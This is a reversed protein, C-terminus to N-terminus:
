KYDWNKARLMELHEEDVKALNTAGIQFTKATQETLDALNEIMGHLSEVTLQESYHLYINVAWGEGITLNKLVTCGQFTNTSLNSKATTISITELKSCSYFTQNFGTGSSIDLLPIETLAVCNYFMNGFSRGNGTDIPPITTLNACGSFMCYFNTGNSTNLLPITELTGCSQFMYSFDTGNSVDLYNLYDNLKNYSAFYSFDTIKSTDIYPKGIDTSPKAGKNFFKSLVIAKAINM